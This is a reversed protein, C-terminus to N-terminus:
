AQAGGAAEHPSEDSGIRKRLREGLERKARRHLEQCAEASPKGMVVAIAKWECSAYDRLLIVERHVESLESLCQDVVEELETRSVKSAVGTTEAPLDFGSASEAYVQMAKAVGGRKKARHHRARNSIENQAMRAVWDIWHADDRKEFRDVSEVIRVLVDQVVDDVSERASLAPWMRVRVIRKIRTYYREILTQLATADGARHRELLTYTNASAESEM